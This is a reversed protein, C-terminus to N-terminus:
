AILSRLALHLGLALLGAFFLRRFSEPRIRKRIWQGWLMGICAPVLAYFSAGAVAPRFTGNLALSAALAMTSVTFALGLAQVLDEKDLGMGQLYPVAPIVFVGTVSTVMGTVIGIFPSLCSEFRDDVNVRVSALGSVAYVVLAAGLAVTAYGGDDRPLLAPGILTGASIGILMPWLRRLLPSFNPGACLQWGNTVLSPVILLGAAEMPTMVTSLLGVAVTPLGLGVIGKVLGALVFIVSVAALLPLARMTTMEILNEM